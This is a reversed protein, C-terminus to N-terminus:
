TELDSHKRVWLNKLDVDEEEDIIELLPERFTKETIYREFGLLLSPLLVLNSLMAVLLTASVLVGLARTGEFDSAAFMLFGFFLVISTYMMSVGTERVAMLVAERMNWGKLDLEQRYKALLHITDDISIGFAISFVLLTSPKLGIGTFGMVAATFVLPLLNPILSIAVMRTSRFLIAMGLAIVLVALALSIFLNHVLYTTGEVYVVSTGTTVVRYKEPPFIEDFQPRLRGLLAKMEQTGIDAIQASVRTRSRQEDVYRSQGGLGIDSKLYPAMFSQDRRNPLGHKAPDGRYFGQRALKLGDALSVSKSINSETALVAQLRELKKLFALQTVAGPRDTHIVVEFPMVGGFETEFWRLDQKIVGESPLDDAINGTIRVQTIGYIGVILVLVTTWYVARRHNLVLKELRLVVKFVWQRDLHRIQRGKPAPLWSFVAPIVLISIVFVAMINISAVVGFQQLVDSDTFIFAAFGLATTTNTMFTANGVKQIVRTLSRAKNKHRKYEAHYKNVLYICNPVGIVIMLPPILAMLASIPYDFLAITGVSWTVGTGVVILSVVMVQFSRFFLLLLFATVAAALLVFSSLEGKILETVETRIFPLGSIHVDHGTQKEFREVANVLVFISKSRNDSNFLDPNVYILQVSVNSRDKDSQYLLGDYFPQNRLYALASDLESQTQPLASIVPEFLFRKHEDDRALVAASRIGFISDAVTIHQTLTGAATTSDVEIYLAELEKELTWWAQFVSLETLAQGDIGLAVVNDERGFQSLFEEHELLTPDDAPLLGGFKYMLRADQAKWGM